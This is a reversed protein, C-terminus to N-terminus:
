DYCQLLIEQGIKGKKVAATCKNKLQRFILWDAPIDTKRAPIDTKRASSWAQNKLRFLNSLEPSFWSNTLNKIRNNKFPAHKYSIHNFIRSFHALALESDM